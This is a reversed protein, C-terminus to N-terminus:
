QDMQIRSDKCPYWPTTNTTVAVWQVSEKKTAELLKRLNKAVGNRAACKIYFHHNDQLYAKEREEQMLHWDIANPELFALESLGQQTGWDLHLVRRSFMALMLAYAIGKIRDAIGGCENECVWLLRKASPKKRELAHFVTYNKLAILFKAFTKGLEETEVLPRSQCTVQLAHLVKLVDDLDADKETVSLLKERHSDNGERDVVNSGNIFPEEVRNLTTHTSDNKLEEVLYGANNEPVRLQENIEDFNREVPTM